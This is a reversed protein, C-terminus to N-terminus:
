AGSEERHKAGIGPGADALARLSKNRKNRKNWDRARLLAV